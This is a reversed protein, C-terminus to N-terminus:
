AFSGVTTADTKGFRCYKKLMGINCGSNYRITKKTDENIQVIYKDTNLEAYDVVTHPIISPRNIQTTWSSMTYSRIEDKACFTREFLPTSLIDNKTLFQIKKFDEYSEISGTFNSSSFRKKYFDSFHNDQVFKILSNIKSISDQTFNTAEMFLLIPNITITKAAINAMIDKNM